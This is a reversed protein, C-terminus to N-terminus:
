RPDTCVTEERNFQIESNIRHFHLTTVCDFTNGACDFTSHIKFAFHFEHDTVDKILLHNRSEGQDRSNCGQSTFSNDFRSHQKLSIAGSPTDTFSFVSLSDTCFTGDGSLECGHAKIVEAGGPDASAPGAVALAGLTLMVAATARRIRSSCM